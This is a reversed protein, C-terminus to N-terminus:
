AKNYYKKHELSEFYADIRNKIQAPSFYRPDELDSEIYLTPVNLEKSFYERMDGQASSFLRCSKIFHIILGDADWNEIYYKIQEYRQLYNRNCLNHFIMHEAISELPKEPNHRFGLDWLGGVTSYTSMVVVAGWQTFYDRLTKFYPYPPPGEVVIRFREEPIAGIGLEACKKFEDLAEKFFDRGEKTGRFVYLPGMLTTADFYGDFVAPRNKNLNRIKWWYEETEASYAVAEKLKENDFKVKFIEEMIKILESLQGVVYNIDDKSPKEQRVFPIDIVYLPAGTFYSLHEFWKLYTNCGVFNCLLLGPLPIKTGISTERKALFYGIDAKVYNCNDVSYGMEEAKLLYPLAQKRIAYQLANIEPYVPKIGFAWILEVPNGSIFIYVSKEGKKDMEDLDQLWKTMLEKQIQHIRGQYSPQAKEEM